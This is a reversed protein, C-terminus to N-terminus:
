YVTNIINRYHVKGTILKLPLKMQPGLQVRVDKLDNPLTHHFKM